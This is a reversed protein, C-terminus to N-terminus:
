PTFDSFVFHAIRNLWGKYFIKQSPNRAVIRDYFLKRAIKIKDFLEKQSANNIATITTVSFKGNSPIGILKQVASAATARGSNYGWDVIIEAISQNNIKDAQFYDWFQRKAIKRADEKTLLKIDNEDIKHDGNKDYGYQKWTALIVGYKTPGGSDEKYNGYGGELLLLLDAFPDFNAM